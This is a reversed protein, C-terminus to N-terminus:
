KPRPEKKMEAKLVNHLIKIQKNESDEDGVITRNPTCMAERTLIEEPNISHLLIALYARATLEYIPAKFSARTEKTGV